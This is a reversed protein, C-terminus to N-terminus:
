CGEIAKKGSTKVKVKTGVELDRADDGCDLIVTKGEIKDVTCSATAAWAGGAASTFIFGAALIATLIKKLM